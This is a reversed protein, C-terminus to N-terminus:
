NLDIASLVRNGKFIQYQVATPSNRLGNLPYVFLDPIGDGDIDELISTNGQFYASANPFLNQNISSFRGKSDNLYVIPKANEGWTLITIAQYGSGNVDNCTMKLAMQNTIENTLSLNIQTIIGNEVSFGMLLVHTEFDNTSEHLLQGNYGGTIVSSPLEYLGFYNENNNRRLSCYEGFSVFGYDAGNYNILNLSGQQGNWSVYQAQKINPFSWDASKIWINNLNKNFLALSTVSTTALHTSSGNGSNTSPFYLGILSNGLSDYDAALNWNTGSLRWAQPKGGYGIVTTIVDKSNFQNDVLDAAMGYSAWGLKEVKYKGGGISTIFVVQKNNWTTPDDPFLARADEGTIPLVIEDYGDGNIDFVATHEFSIGGIDVLDVGFLDITGDYFAGDNRQIFVILGNITPVSNLLIKGTPKIVCYLTVVIDKKGDKHGSMNATLARMGVTDGCLRDYKKRVDPLLIANSSFPSVIACQINVNSINSSITGSGNSIICNYNNPVTLAKVAYTSGSELSKSFTYSGNGSILEANSVNDSLVVSASTPLGTIVGGITYNKPLQPVTITPTIVTSGSGGGGGGCGSLLTFLLLLSIWLLKKIM